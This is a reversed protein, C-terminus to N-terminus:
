KSMSDKKMADKSLSDKKPAGKSMSDQAWAGGSGLVMCISMLTAAFQNM